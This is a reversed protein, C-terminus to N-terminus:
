TNTPFIPKLNARVGNEALRMLFGHKNAYKDIYDYRMGDLEFNWFLCMQFFLLYFLIGLSIVLNLNNTFSFCDVIKENNFIYLTFLLTYFFYIKIKKM